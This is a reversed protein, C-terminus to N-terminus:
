ENIIVTIYNIKELFSLFKILEMKIFDEPYISENNNNNNYDNKIAQLFDYISLNSSILPIIPTISPLILYTIELNNALYHNTNILTSMSSKGRIYANNLFNVLRISTRDNIIIRELLYDNFLEENILVRINDNNVIKNSIYLSYRFSPFLNSVFSEQDIGFSKFKLINYHDLEDYPHSYSTPLWALVQLNSQILLDEIENMLYINYNNNTVINSDKNSISSIDILIYQLIFEILQNDNNFIELGNNNFYKKIIDKLYLKNNNNNNDSIIYKQLINKIQNIHKNNTYYTLGIIGDNYLLNHFINLHINVIEKSNLSIGNNYEVYDYFKGIYLKSYSIIDNNIYNFNIITSSNLFKNNNCQNLKEKIKNILNINNSLITIDINFILKSTQFYGILSYINRENFYNAFLINYSRINNLQIRNINGKYIHHIIENISAVGIYENKTIIHEIELPLPIPTIFDICINDENNLINNNNNDNNNDKICTKGSYDYNSYHSIKNGFILTLEILFILIMMIIIKIM